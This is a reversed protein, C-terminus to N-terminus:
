SAAYKRAPEDFESVASLRFLGNAARELRGERLLLGFGRLMDDRPVDKGENNAMVYNMLEIRTFEERDKQHTVYAAAAEIQEDLLWADVEKAFARFADLDDPSLPANGDKTLYDIGSASNAKVRRPRIPGSSTPADIRQESVLVLPAREDQPRASRARGMAAPRRPMPAVSTEPAASPASPEQAAAQETVAEDDVATKRLSEDPKHAPRPSLPVDEDKREDSDLRQREDTKSIAADMLEPTDMDVRYRDIERQQEIDVRRPGTAEEEARTADVAVRMHEFADRRRRSDATGLESRAVEMLRDADADTASQIVKLKARTDPTRRSAVEQEIGALEGLLDSEADPNLGTNGLISRIQDRLDEASTPSDDNLATEVEDAPEQAGEDVDDDDFHDDADIDDDDFGEFTDGSTDIKEPADLTEPESALDDYLPEDDEDDEAESRDFHASLSSDAVAEDASEELLERSEDFDPEFASPAEDEPQDPESAALRESLAEIDVEADAAPAEPEAPALDEALAGNDALEQAPHDVEDSSSAGDQAAMDDDAASGAHAHGAVLGAGLAAATAPTAGSGAVASRIRALKDSFEQPGPTDVAGHQDAGEDASAAAPRAPEPAAPQPAPTPDAAATAAQPATQPQIAQAVQTPTAPMAAGLTPQGSEPRLIIGNEQVRAEVRHQIEREAIRHLMEADPTPPEAGFYRDGAALDRFYEAIAQMTGFPEDFGELTCSFTGYSVTLIKNPPVM